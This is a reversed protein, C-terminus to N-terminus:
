CLEQLSLHEVALVRRRSIRLTAPVRVGQGPEGVPGKYPCVGTGSGEEV